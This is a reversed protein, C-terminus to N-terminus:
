IWDSTQHPRVLHLIYILVVYLKQTDDALVKFTMRHGVHEAIGM